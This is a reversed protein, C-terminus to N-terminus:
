NEQLLLKVFEQAYTEISKFKKRKLDEYAYEDVIYSMNCKKCKLQWGRIIGNKVQFVGYDSKDFEEAQCKPCKVIAETKVTM